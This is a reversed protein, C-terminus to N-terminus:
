RPLEGIPLHHAPFSVSAGDDSEPGESTPGIMERFARLSVTDLLDAALTSAQSGNGAHVLGAELRSHYDDRFAESLESPDAVQGERIAERVDTEAKALVCHATIGAILSARATGVPDRVSPITSIYEAAATDAVDVADDIWADIRDTHASTGVASDAVFASAFDAEEAAIRHFVDGVIVADAGASLVETAKERSDIGGGYWLRTWDLSPAIAELIDVAESGGYTGSYELYLVESGLYREAAIARDRAQEPSLLGSEDVGAERAAASDPNQIVYAEFVASYLMWHTFFEALRDGYRNAVPAPLLKEVAAPALEERIFRTGTGLSGVFAEDDGNLVQPVALFSSASLTGETVHSAASPEHFAPTSVSSLLRFTEVTNTETVDASGGVSIGDTYQLYRPYAIPLKKADEPDVKTVHEWDGPVPNTDFPLLTRGALCGATAARGITRAIRDFASM